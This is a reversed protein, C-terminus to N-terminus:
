RLKLWRRYSRTSEVAVADMEREVVHDTLVLAAKRRRVEPPRKQLKRAKKLTEHDRINNRRAIMIRRMLREEDDMHGKLFERCAYKLREGDRLSLWKHFTPSQRVLEEDFDPPQSHFFSCYDTFLYNTGGHYHLRYCVWELASVRPGM